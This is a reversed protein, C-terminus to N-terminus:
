CYFQPAFLSSFWDQETQDINEYYLFLLLLADFELEIQLM